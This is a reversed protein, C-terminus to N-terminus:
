ISGANASLECWVCVRCPRLLPSSSPKWRHYKHITQENHICRSVRIFVATATSAVVQLGIESNEHTNNIKEELKIEGNQLRFQAFNRNGPGGHVSCDDFSPFKPFAWNSGNQLQLNFTITTRSLIQNTYHLIQGRNHDGIINSNGLFITSPIPINFQDNLNQLIEILESRDLTFAIDVSSTPNIPSGVKPVTKSSRHHKPLFQLSLAELLATKGANNKGVIINFGKKLELLPSQNFSKYNNVRVSSIYMALRRQKSPSFSIMTSSHAFKGIGESIALRM